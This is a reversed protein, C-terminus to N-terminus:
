KIKTLLVDAFGKNESIDGNTSNTEGVAIITGNNLQIADYFFDIASGGITTQWIIKGSESVEVLWGDNQGQNKSVDGNLSRSSGAILYNNNQTKTISRAADFSSGGITFKNLIEGNENIKLMWIDAAGKNLTVEKDSSRTDGVIIFNGDNAITIARAEDIESGGFSKEWILKGTSSIKIVWFDYTGKNNKIDVDNSDSSGVIIYENKSTEVVGFPTDTFSGGYYNRWIVNGSNDLKIAWIDGGAHKTASKKNGLGGSSTVDLVGTILFGNDKTAILTTGFDAGLFGFSKEWILNGFNDLKILWFDQSGNNNSVDINDSQTFGFIAFGGDSTEIIDNASDTNTGGFTKSWLIKDDSSFKAVLFDTNEAIKDTINGDISQTYGAIAYGGDTTKVVSNAVDVKSGGFTTTSIIKEQNLQKDDNIYEEKSCSGVLILMFFFFLFRTKM